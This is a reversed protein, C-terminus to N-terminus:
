HTFTIFSVSFYYSRLYRQFNELHVHLRVVPPHSAHIEFGLMRWVATSTSIYRGTQYAMIEDYKNKLEMSIMDSGKTIYKCIYKISKVSSCYEVNVHAQLARSLVPSYPVVFRNDVEVWQDRVQRRYIQGGDSPSRRRYNPYGDEKTTTENAFPRPYRKACNGKKDLCLSKSCPGHIM